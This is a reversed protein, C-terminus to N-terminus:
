LSYTLGVTFTRFNRQIPTRSDVLTGGFGDEWGATLQFHHFKVAAALGFVTGQTGYGLNATIDLWNLPNIEIAGRGEWYPLGAGSIFRGTAGVALRRYFPMEYKVGLNAQMRLKETRWSHGYFGIPKVLSLFQKGSDKLLKKMEDGNLKQYTVDDFGKFTASWGM